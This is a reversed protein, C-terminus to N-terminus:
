TISLGIIELKVLLAPALYRVPFAKVFPVDRDSKINGSFSVVRVEAVATM